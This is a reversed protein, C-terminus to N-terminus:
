LDSQTSTNVHYSRQPPLICHTSWYINEKQPTTPLEAELDYLYSIAFDTKDSAFEAPNFSLCSKGRYALEVM